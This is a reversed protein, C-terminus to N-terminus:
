RKTPWEPSTVRLIRREGDEEERATKKNLLHFQYIFYYVFVTWSIIVGKGEQFERMRYTRLPFPLKDNKINYQTKTYYGTYLSCLCYSIFFHLLSFFQILSQVNCM